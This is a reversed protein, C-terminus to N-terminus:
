FMASTGNYTTESFAAASRRIVGEHVMLWSLDLSSGM